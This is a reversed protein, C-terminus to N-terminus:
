QIKFQNNIEQKFQELEESTAENVKQMQALLNEKYKELQKQREEEGKRKQQKIERQWQEAFSALAEYVKERPVYKADKPPEKPTTYNDRAERAENDYEKALQMLVHPTLKGYIKFDAKKVRMVFHKLEAFSWYNYQNLLTTTEYCLDTDWVVGFFKLISELAYAFVVASMEGVARISPTNLKLIEFQTNAAM